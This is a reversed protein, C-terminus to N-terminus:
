IFNNEFGGVECIMVEKNYCLVMDNLNYVLLDINKIYDVGDWYLYYFMGIVDYKVGVFKFGDFVGRYLSNNVGSVLYIIVKLFM